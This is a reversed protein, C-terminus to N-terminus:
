NFDVRSWSLFWSFVLYFHNEKIYVFYKCFIYLLSTSLILMNSFKGKCDLIFCLHEEANRKDNYLLGQQYFLDLFFILIVLVPFCSIFTDNNVSLIFFIRFFSVVSFTHSNPLSNLLTLHVILIYCFCYINRLSDSVFYM